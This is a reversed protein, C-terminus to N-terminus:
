CFKAFFVLTTLSDFKLCDSLWSSQIVTELPELYLETESNM